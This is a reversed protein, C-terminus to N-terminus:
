PDCLGLVTWRVPSNRARTIERVVVADTTVMVRAGLGAGLVDVALIPEGDPQDNAGLMQVVLLRRGVLTPHKVTAIGHGVVKGLQM